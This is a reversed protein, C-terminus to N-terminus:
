GWSLAPEDKVVPVTEGVGSLDAMDFVTATVPSVMRGPNVTYPRHHRCERGARSIEDALSERMSGCYNMFVRTRVACSERYGCTSCQVKRSYIMGIGQQPTLSSATSM